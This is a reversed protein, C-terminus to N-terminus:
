PIADILMEIGGLAWAVFPPCKAKVAQFLVDIPINIQAGSPFHPNNETLVIAIIGADLTANADGQGGDFKVDILLM